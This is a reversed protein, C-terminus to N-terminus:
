KKVGEITEPTGDPVGSAEKLRQYEDELVIKRITLSDLRYVRLAFAGFFGTGVVLFAISTAVFWGQLSLGWLNFRGVPILLGLLMVLLASFVYLSGTWAWLGISKLNDISKLTFVYSKEHGRKPADPALLDNDIENIQRYVLTEFIAATAPILAVMTGAVGLLGLLVNHLYAEDNPLAIGVIAFVSTLLVVLTIREPHFFTKVLGILESRNMSKVLLKGEPM